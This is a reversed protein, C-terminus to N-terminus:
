DPQRELQEELEARLLRLQSSAWTAPKGLHQSIEGLSLGHSIFPTLTAAIELAQPSLADWYPPVVSTRCGRRRGEALM